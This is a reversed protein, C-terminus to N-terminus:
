LGIFIFLHFFDCMSPINLHYINAHYITFLFSTLFTHLTYDVSRFIYDGGTNGSMGVYEQPSGEPPGTTLVEDGVSPHHTNWGTLPALIGGAERGFGWFM